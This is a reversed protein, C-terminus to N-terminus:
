QKPTLASILDNMIQTVDATTVNDKPNFNGKADLKIVGSGVLAKVSNEAWVSISDKDSIVANDGSLKIGNMLAIRDMFVALREKTLLENEAYNGKGDGVLLGQQKAFELPNPVGQLLLEIFQATTVPGDNVKQQGFSVISEYLEKNENLKAASGVTSYTGNKVVSEFMAASDKVDKVTVSKIERLLKLKDEATRGMLYEGIYNAAGSLEGTTATYTSYAKLIYRDLEEQTIKTDKVFGPVGKYVDFTEKINPDRYTLILFSTNNFESLISYAGNSYRLKPILYNDNVMLAIPIYKGNYDIGTKKHAASIMNYQVTTDISIGERQAPKPLKKYDQPVIKTAPLANILANIDSEFTKISSENGAFAAIMDTKNLVLKHVADLEAMVAKPDKQLAQELQVLFDYYELGSIYNTYNVHDNALALNRTVLLNLPNATFMNKMDAIQSRVISLVTESDSFKTSVAIEKVLDLQEKYEDMLGIWSVTMIPTFKDLKEQPITSLSFGAGNLYRMSLTNLQEKKYKETDLRGLLNSCLRLYHLKEAPVASTDLALITIGTEGVSAPVSIIREGNAGATEKVNYTKVEVPLEAAKVVQLEKTVAQEEQSAEKSNWENYSKTNSVTKEIEKASMSAKMDTLYKQQQEAQKEALGAEPVTSVLAAHNNNVVYKKTLDEFYNKGVKNTLNKTNKILNDYYDLSDSSAWLTSLGSSLNVGLNSQETITSYSLLTSSITAKILDKDYGNKMIGNICEDVLAKFEGAKSADASTATFTLVPQVISTNVDVTFSGGIQKKTFAQKIPSSDQNLITALVSLGVIDEDSVDTLAFAYDIQAAYQTKSDASVAFKFSKEIKKEFPAVKKYDIKIEKKDFKSLYDDNILKLFRTYDVNGYLIMLSNSPHYYKEHTEILQEYTLEKIKEPEGGSISSQYSDPYLTKLVNYYAATTINGLAGKMENYVTGNINLPADANEMEYRWAERLFINKDNYVSPNYVCDMYVDTLKLLQDESMSSLPYATYTSATMANVFTSYTQNAVTFLVNKLPYKESGSVTIHELVHNVGTDDVAPTKFTVAFSRDIDKSQVYLLKAGTKEHEFLVTKSNVLEMNNIETAKFGSIVEGIQPLPKLEAEAANVVTLSLCMSLLLVITVALSIIKKM